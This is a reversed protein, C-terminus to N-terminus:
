GHPDIGAEERKKQRELAKELEARETLARRAWGNFPKGAMQAAEKWRQIEAESAHLNQQAM